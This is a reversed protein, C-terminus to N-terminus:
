FFFLIFQSFKSPFISFFKSFILYPFYSFFLLLKTPISVCISIIAFFKSLESSIIYNNELFNYIASSVKALENDIIEVGITPFQEAEVLDAVIGKVDEAIM